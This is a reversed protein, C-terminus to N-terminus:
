YALCNLKFLFWCECMANVICCESGYGATLVNLFLLILFWYQKVCTLFLRLLTVVAKTNSDQLLFYSILLIVKLLLFGLSIQVPLFLYTMSVMSFLIHQIKYKISIAIVLNM